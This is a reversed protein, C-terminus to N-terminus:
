RSPTAGAAAPKALPPAVPSVARIPGDPEYTPSADLQADTLESRVNLESGKRMFRLASWDAAVRRREEMLSGVDLVAAQPAGHTDILVDIIRGVRSGDGREVTVDIIRLPEAKAAAAAPAGPKKLADASPAASQPLALTIVTKKMAPNFTFAFSRWPFRVKRDGVGLFGMLNVLMDVPRGDNDVLMDIARGIIKGGSRQVRADLLGHTDSPSLLRTAVIPAPVPPPAAPPTEPPAPKRPAIRRHPPKPPAKRTEAAEHPPEPAATASAEVPPEAPSEPELEASPPVQEPAATPSPGFLTGCGALTTLMLLVLIHRIASHRSFGGSM